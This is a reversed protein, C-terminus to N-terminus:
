GRAPLQHIFPLVDTLEHAPVHIDRSTTVVWAAADDAYHIIGVTHGRIKIELTWHPSPGNTRPSQPPLLLLKNSM